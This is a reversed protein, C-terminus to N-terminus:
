FENKVGRLDNYVLIRVEHFHSDCVLVRQNGLPKEENLNKWEMNRVFLIYQKKM